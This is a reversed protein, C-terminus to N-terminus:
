RYSFILVGYSRRLTKKKATTLKPTHQHEGLATNKPNPCAAPSIHEPKYQPASSSIKIHSFTHIPLKPMYKQKCAAHSHGCLLTQLHVLAELAWKAAALFCSPKSSSHYLFCRIRRCIHIAMIEAPQRLLPRGKRLAKDAARIYVLSGLTASLIQAVVINTQAVGVNAHPSIVAWKRPLKHGM